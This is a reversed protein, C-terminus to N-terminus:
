STFRWYSHCRKGADDYFPDIIRSKRIAAELVKSAAIGDVKGDHIAGV